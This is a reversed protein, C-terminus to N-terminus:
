MVGVILQETRRFLFKASNMAYMNGEEQLSQETNKHKERCQECATQLAAVADRCLALAKWRDQAEAGPGLLGLGLYYMEKAAEVCEAAKEPKMCEEPIKRVYEEIKSLRERLEDKAM